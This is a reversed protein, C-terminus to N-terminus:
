QVLTEALDPVVRTLSISHQAQVSENPEPLPMLQIAALLLCALRRYPLQRLYGSMVPEKPLSRRHRDEPFSM